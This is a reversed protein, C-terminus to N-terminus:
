QAADDFLFKVEYNENLQLKADFVKGSKSKFGKITKTRGHKLLDAANTKTLKKGAATKGIGFSCKNKENNWNTCGWGWKFTIVEGGCKPCKGIVEKETNIKSSGSVSNLQSCWERTQNCIDDVFKEFSEKNKSIDELRLEWKATLAPSVIDEIPILDILRIGVDTARIQKGNREAYGRKLLTEVIAARTAETGIGKEGSGSSLVEKLEQSDLISGAGIMAAVLTKDTFAKPPKTERNEITYEANVVEGEALVPLIQEKPAGMAELWGPVLITTGNTKFEVGGAETIVTTKEIKAPGLLMSMFNRCILDYVRKQKENLGSPLKGTPIIAHHSQVKSDDFYYKNVSARRKQILKAYPAVTELSDFVKNVQGVMDATLYQSDTRPYTTVAMEYLQQSIELTEALTYGFRENTAMALTSQSYLHPAGKTQEEKTVSSIVATNPLTPVDSKQEYRTKCEGTYAGDKFTGAIVFYKSKKFDRIQKERDVLIKLTPTQVRGLSLVGKESYKRTIAVTLNAGIVWDAISRARGANTLAEIDTPELLNNFSDRLASPVLSSFHARKFPVKCKMTNYIYYFILEGERDYDTANIILDAKKFLAAVTRVLDEKSRDFKTEFQNPIFPMPLKSWSKYEPNYDQAQKLGALHGAGWTVITDEGKYVITCFGKDKRISGKENLANAITQALSYKEAYIVTM